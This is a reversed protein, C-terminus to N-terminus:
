QNTNKIMSPTKGPCEPKSWKTHICRVGHVIYKLVTSPFIISKHYSCLSLAGYNSSKISPDHQPFLTHPMLYQSWKGAEDEEEEPHEMTTHILTVMRHAEEDDLMTLLMGTPLLEMVAQMVLAM